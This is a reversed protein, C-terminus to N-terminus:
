SKISLLKLDNKRFLSVKSDFEWMSKEVQMDSYRRLVRICDCTSNGEVSEHNLRRLTQIVWDTTCVFTHLVSGLEGSDSWFM